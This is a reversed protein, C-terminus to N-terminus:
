AGPSREAACDFDAVTKGLAAAIKEITVRSPSLKANEIRSIHPQPLGTKDSLEEQTMGCAERAEKVRKAVYESWKQLAEPRKGEGLSLQEITGPRCEFIELMTDAIQAKEEDSTAVVMDKLLGVLDKRDDDSLRQLRDMLVAVAMAVAQEQPNMSRVNHLLETTAMPVM